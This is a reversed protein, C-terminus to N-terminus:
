LLAQHMSPMFVTCDKKGELMQVPIVEVQFGKGGQRQNSGEKYEM